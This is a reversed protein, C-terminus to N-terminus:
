SNGIDESVPWTTEALSGSARSCNTRFVVHLEGEADCEIREIISRILHVREPPELVDWLGDFENLTESIHDLTAEAMRDLEADIEDARRTLTAIEDGTEKLRQYVESTITGGVGLSAVLRKSEEDRQIRQKQLRQRESRLNAGSESQAALVEEFVSRALEPDRAVQRIREVVFAEIEGAPLAPTPCSGRGRKVEKACRYYRYALHGNKKKTWVHSMASGCARCRIIGSLLANHMTPKICSQNNRNERLLADVQNFVEDSVIREQLGDFVEGHLSVKGIYIPNTLLRQLYVKDFQSGGRTFGNASVWQKKIWGRRNVEKVVELLTRKKLYLDFLERIMVAEQENVVLRHNVRDIDYGLLPPGGIWRGKKRAAHVKERTRESGLEREFQAFSMLVNLMLRGASNSTDISQTVAVFNVGQQEFLQWLETFDRLSRSLRDIKYVVVCDIKDAEIDEILSKLAPRELNGGSFGGDDYLTELAIWGEGQQAKIYNECAERQNDISSFASDLGENTSKRTYIGCRVIKVDPAPPPVRVGRRSPRQAVAQNM